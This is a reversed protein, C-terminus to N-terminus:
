HTNLNRIISIDAKNKFHEDHNDSNLFHDLMYDVSLVQTLSEIAVKCHKIDMMKTKTLNHKNMYKKQEETLALSPTALLILLLLLAVINLAKTM